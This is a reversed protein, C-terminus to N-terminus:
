IALRGLTAKAAAALLVSTVTVASFVLVYGIIVLMKKEHAPTILNSRAIVESIATM